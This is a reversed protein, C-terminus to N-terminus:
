EYETSAIRVFQDSTVLDFLIWHPQDDTDGEVYDWNIVKTKKAETNSVKQLDTIEQLYLDFEKDYSQLLHLENKATCWDVRGDEWTIKYIM